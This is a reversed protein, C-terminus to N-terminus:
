KYHPDKVNGLLKKVVEIFANWAQLEVNNVTNTVTVDNMLKAIQPGDYIGEKVKAESLALFKISLYQFCSGSKDLAQVFQKTNGLKIHL